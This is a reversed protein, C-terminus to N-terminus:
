LDQNQKFSKTDGDEVPSPELQCIVILSM